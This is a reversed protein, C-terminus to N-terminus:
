DEKPDEDDDSEEEGEGDEGGEGRDERKSSGPPKRFIARYLLGPLIWDMWQDRNWSGTEKPTTDTLQVQFYSHVSIALFGNMCFLTMLFYYYSIFPICWDHNSNYMDFLDYDQKILFLLSIVTEWLSSFNYLFPSWLCNAFIVAGMFLPAVILLFHGGMISSRSLTKWFQDIHINLKMYTCFRVCILFLFFGECNFLREQLVAEASYSYFSTMETPNPPVYDWRMYCMAVFLAVTSADIFGIFSFIYQLGSEGMSVKYNTEKVVQLTLIYFVFLGRFVDIALAGVGGGFESGLGFPILHQSAIVAGSPSIEFVWSSSLFGGLNYNAMLVEFILVRTHKTLWVKKFVEMDDLITQATNPNSLNYDVMYGSGDYSGQIYGRVEASFDEAATWTLPDPVADRGSDELTTNIWKDATIILKQTDQESVTNTSHCAGGRYVPLIESRLCDVLLASKQQRVRLFGMPVYYTQLTSNASFVQYHFSGSAWNWMDIYQLQGKNVIINTVGGMSSEGSVGAGVTEYVGNRLWYYELQHRLSMVLCTFLALFLYVCIDSCRIHSWNKVPQNQSNYKVLNHIGPWRQFASAYHDEDKAKEPKGGHQISTVASDDVEHATQKRIIEEIDYAGPSQSEAKRDKLVKEHCLLLHARKAKSLIDDNTVNTELEVATLEKPEGKDSRCLRFEDKSCGWFECADEHLQTGTTEKDVRYTVRYEDYELDRAQPKPAVYTVIVSDHAQKASDEAVEGDDAGEEDDSDEEIMDDAKFAPVRDGLLSKVGKEVFTKAATDQSNEAHRNGPQDHEIDQRDLEKQLEEADAERVTLESNLATIKENLRVLGERKRTNESQLSLIKARTDNNAAEDEKDDNM